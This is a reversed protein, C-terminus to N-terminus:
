GGLHHYKSTRAEWTVWHYLICGICSVCTWDKLWSSGRSSSSAVWQLIRALIIGHVSSAPLSYLWHAWLSDSAISAASWVDCKLCTILYLASVKRFPNTSKYFLFGGGWSEQGKQWVLVLLLFDEILFGGGSVLTQQGFQDKFEGFEPVM